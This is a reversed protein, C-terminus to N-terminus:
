LLRTIAQVVAACPITADIIHHATERYLPEREEFIRSIEALPSDGTLSPRRSADNQHELRAYLCDPPAALYFVVGSDRMFERNARDLVM